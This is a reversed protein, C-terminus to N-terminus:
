FALSPHALLMLTFRVSSKYFVIQLVFINNISKFNNVGIKNRGHEKLKSLEVFLNHAEIKLLASALSSILVVAKFGLEEVMTAASFKFNEPQLWDSPRKVIDRRVVSNTLFQFSKHDTEDFLIHLV